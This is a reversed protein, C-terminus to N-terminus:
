EYLSTAVWAQQELLKEYATNAANIQDRIAPTKEGNSKILAQLIDFSGPVDLVARWDRAVNNNGVDLTAYHQLLQEKTMGLIQAQTLNLRQLLDTLSKQSTIDVSVSADGSRKVGVALWNYGSYKAYQARISQLLTERLADKLADNGKFVTTLATPAEGKAAEDAQLMDVIQEPYTWVVGNQLTADPGTMITRLQANLQEPKVNAMLSRTAAQTARVVQQGFPTDYGTKAMIAKSAQIITQDVLPSAQRVVTEFGHRLAFPGGSSQSAMQNLLKKLVGLQKFYLEIKQQDDNSLPKQAKALVEIVAAQVQSSAVKFANVAQQVEQTKADRGFLRAVGATLNNWMKTLRGSSDFSDRILGQSLDHAVGGLQDVVISAKLKLEQVRTLIAQIQDANQEAFEPTLTQIKEFVKNIQGILESLKEVNQDVLDFGFKSSVMEDLAAQYDGLFVDGFTDFYEALLKQDVPIIVGDVTKLQKNDFIETLKSGLNLTGDILKKPAGTGVAKLGSVSGEAANEIATASNSITQLSKDLEGDLAPHYVGFASKKYTRLARTFNGIRNSIFQRPEQQLSVDEHALDKEFLEVAKQLDAIVGDALPQGNTISNATKNVIDQISQIDKALKSSFKTLDLGNLSTILTTTSDEFAKKADQLLQIQEETLPVETAEQGARVTNQLDDLQERSFGFSQGLLVEATSRGKASIDAPDPDIFSTFKNLASTNNDILTIDNQSLPRNQLLSKTNARLTEILPKGFAVIQKVMNQLGNEPAGDPIQTMLDVLRSVKDYPPLDEKSGLLNQLLENTRQFATSSNPTRSTPKKRANLYANAASRAENADEIVKNLQEVAEADGAQKLTDRLGALARIKQSFNVWDNRSMNERILNKTATAMSIMANRVQVQNAESVNELLAQTSAYNVGDSVPALASLLSERLAALATQQAQQAPTLGDGGSGGKGGAGGTPELGTDVPAEPGGENQDQGGGREGVPEGTEGPKPGTPGSEPELEPVEVPNEFDGLAYMASFGSTMLVLLALQIKINKMRAVKKITIKTDTAGVRRM